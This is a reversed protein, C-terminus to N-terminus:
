LEKAADLQLQENTNTYFIYFLTVDEFTTLLASPRSPLVNVSFAEMALKDHDCSRSQHFAFPSVFTPFASSSTCCASHFVSSILM